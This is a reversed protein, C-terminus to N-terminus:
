LTYYDEPVTETPRWDIEGALGGKFRLLLEACHQESRSPRKKAAARVWEHALAPDLEGVRTVGILLVVLHKCPTGSQGYCRDLNQDACGYQGTDDLWCAYYTDSQTQSRVIGGLFRDSGVDTYLEMPDTKLMKIARDIKRHDILQRLQVTLSRYDFQTTEPHELCALIELLNQESLFQLREGSDRLAHAKKLAATKGKKRKEGVVIFDLEGDVDDRLTAGHQTLLGSLGHEGDIEAQAFGGVLAFSRGSLSPRILYLLGSEDLTELSAGNTRHAEAHRIAQARGKERGDGVVLYDLDSDVTKTVYAGRAQVHEQPTATGFVDPWRAFRGFFAFRKGSLSEAYHFRDDVDPM